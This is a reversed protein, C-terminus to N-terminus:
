RRQRSLLWSKGVSLIATVVVVSLTVKRLDGGPPLLLAYGLMVFGGAVFVWGAFRHTQDWVRDDALTWRTRVGILPNPPLKGMVNGLVIYVVGLIAPIVRAASWSLGLVPSLVMLDTPVLILVPLMWMVGYARPARALNAARGKLHPIALFLLWLLAGTGPAIFFAPIPSMWGNPTGDGAFHVAIQADQPVQLCAWAGTLAMLLIFGASVMAAKPNIM